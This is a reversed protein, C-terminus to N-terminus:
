DYYGRYRQLKGDTDRGPQCDRLWIIDGNNAIM